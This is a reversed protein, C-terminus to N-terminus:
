LAGRKAANPEKRGIFEFMRCPNGNMSLSTHQEGLVIEYPAAIEATESESHHHAVFLLAGASDHVAFNGERWGKAKGRSYRIGYVPNDVDLLFDHVYLIGNPRLLHLAKALSARWQEIQPVCTLFRNMLIADFHDPPDFSLFDAVEFNLLPASPHQCSREKAKAIVTPNIDIGTCSHSHEALYLAVGGVNCGVDLISSGTNLIPLLRKPFLDTIAPQYDISGWVAYDSDSLTPATV